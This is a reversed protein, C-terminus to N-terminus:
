QKEKFYLQDYYRSMVLDEKFPALEGAFPRDSLVLDIENVGAAMTLAITTSYRPNIEFIVPVGDDRLVLQVNFPGNAGLKEQVQVCLDQIAPSKRTVALITPGRKYIVEKPVVALVDGAKNVVVSVTFEKGKIKEQVLIGDGSLELLVKYAEIQERNRVEMVNRSGRGVRPKVIRPYELGDRIDSALLTEPYPLGNKRLNEVLNWKDLVMKTFRCEPLLITLDPFDKKLEYSKLIEEDVLPVFVDVGEENIIGSVVEIFRVDGGAPLIFDKDAFRLGASWKDMDGLIVKYKGSSKLAKAAAITGAGGGGTMFITKKSM